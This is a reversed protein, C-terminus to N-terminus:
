EISQFLLEIAGAFRRLIREVVPLGSELRESGSLEGVLCRLGEAVSNVPCLFAASIEIRRGVVPEFRRELGMVGFCGSEFGFDLQLPLL